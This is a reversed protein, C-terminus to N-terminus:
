TPNDFRASKLCHGFDSQNPESKPRKQADSIWVLIITRNPGMHGFDLSSVSLM